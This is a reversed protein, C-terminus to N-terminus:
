FLPVAQITYESFAMCHASSQIDSILQLLLFSCKLIQIFIFAVCEIEDNESESLILDRKETLVNKKEELRDFIPEM